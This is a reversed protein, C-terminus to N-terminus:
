IASIARFYDGLSIIDPIIDLSTRSKLEVVKFSQYRQEKPLILNQQLSLLPSKLTDAQEQKFM